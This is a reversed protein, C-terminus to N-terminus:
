RYIRLSAILDRASNQILSTAKETANERHEFWHGTLLMVAQEARGPFLLEPDPAPSDGETDVGCEFRIRVPKLINGSLSPQSFLNKFRLWAGEDTREWEYQDEAVTQEADAADFYKVSVVGRVPAAPLEVLCGSYFRDCGEQTFCSLRLEYITDILTLGTEKEVFDFANKLYLKMAKDDDPSVGRFIEIADAVDIPMEAAREITRLPKMRNARM